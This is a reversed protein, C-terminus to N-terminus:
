SLLCRHNSERRAGCGGRPGDTHRGLPIPEDIVADIVVAGGIRAQRALVPYVPNPASILQPAKVKGGVRIPGKPAVSIPAPAPPAADSLVGGIVGGPVGGPVGGAVGEGPAIAAALDNGEPEETLRAIQRPIVRPAVLKGSMSLARRKPAASRVSAPALPPAPAPPPAVLLSKNFQHVDIAESFYLPVLLLVALFLVQVTASVVFDGIRRPPRTPSNELMAEAFLGKAPEFGAQKSESVFISVGLSRGGKSREQPTAVDATKADVPVLFRTAIV